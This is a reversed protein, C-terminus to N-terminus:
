KGAGQIFRSYGVITFQYRPPEWTEGSTRYGGYVGFSGKGNVVIVNIYSPNTENAITAPDGGSTRSVRLVVNYINDAVSSRGLALVSGRYVLSQGLGIGGTAASSVDTLHFSVGDGCAALISLCFSVVLSKTRM